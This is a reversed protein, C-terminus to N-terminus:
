DRGADIASTLTKHAAEQYWADATMSNVSSHARTKGVTTQVEFGDGAAAAIRDARASLEDQVEQSKLLAQIGASNMVIKADM